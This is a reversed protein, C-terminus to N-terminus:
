ISTRHGRMNSGAHSCLLVVPGTLEEPVGMRGMPNRECWTRRAVELGEGENLVTDMYGPSITNVRIGHVAWEAALSTKLSILAAKSANYAAQPQPYNTRHASISAVLLMSLPLHLSIQLRGFPSTLLSEFLPSLRNFPVHLRSVTSEHNQIVTLSHFRPVM